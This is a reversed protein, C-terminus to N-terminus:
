GLENYRSQTFKKTNKKTNKFLPEQIFRFGQRFTTTGSKADFLPISQLLPLSTEVLSARADESAETRHQRKGSDSTGPPAKSFQRFGGFESYGCLRRTRSQRSYCDNPNKLPSPRKWFLDRPSQSDLILDHSRLRRLRLCARM